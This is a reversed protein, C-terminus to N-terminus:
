WGASRLLPAIHVASSKEVRLRSRVQQASQEAGVVPHGRPRCASAIGGRWAVRSFWDSMQTWEFLERGMLRGCRCSYNCASTGETGAPLCLTSALSCSGPRRYAAHTLANSGRRAHARARMACENWDRAYRLRRASLHPPRAPDHRRRNPVLWRAHRGHHREALAPQPLSIPSPLM